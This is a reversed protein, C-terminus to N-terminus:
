KAPTHIKNHLELVARRHHKRNHRQFERIVVFITAAGVAYLWDAATLAGSHFYGTDWPSLIVLMTIGASLAMAWWFRKNHLQYRSFMGLHTRSQVLHVFMCLVITLVVLATARTHIVSTAALYQPHIGNRDFFWLFNLYSLGSTLLGCWLLDVSTRWSLWYGQIAHTKDDLADGIAKDWRMCVAPILGATMIAIIQLLSLAPPIHATVMAIWSSVILASVAVISICTGRITKRINQTTTRGARIAHVLTILNSDLLYVDAKQIGGAAPGLSVRTADSSALEDIDKSLITVQEGKRHASHILRKKEDTSLHLLIVAGRRVLQYRQAGSLDHWMKEDVITAGLPEDALGYHVAMTKAQALTQSTFLVIAVHALRLAKLANPLHNHPQAYGKETDFVSSDICLVTTAGLSEIASTRAMIAIPAKQTGQHRSSQRINGM